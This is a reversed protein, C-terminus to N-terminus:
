NRREDKRGDVELSWHRGAWMTYPWCCCGNNIWNMRQDIYKMENMWYHARSTILLNNRHLKNELSGKNRAASYILEFRIVDKERPGAWEILLVQLWPNSFRVLKTPVPRPVSAVREVDLREAIMVQLSSSRSRRMRGRNSSDRDRM